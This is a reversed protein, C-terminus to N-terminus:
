NPNQNHWVLAGAGAASTQVESLRIELADYIVPLIRQPLIDKIRPLLLDQAAHGLGGGIVILSPNLVTASWGLATALATAGEDVIRVALPDDARAAELIDKVANNAVLTSEPYQPLYDQLALRFAKGSIYRETNGVLGFDGPRGDLKYAIHGIEMAAYSVGRMIAGDIVACGGLGTGIATYIFNQEGRAAGFYMEGLAEAKMDTEAWIPVEFPLRANLEERLHVNQWNEGLNAAVISTCTTHDVPGPCGVGIGEVPVDIQDTIQQIANAARDLIASVGGENPLTPTTYQAIAEGDRNLAAVAIKTGGIDVGIAIGM